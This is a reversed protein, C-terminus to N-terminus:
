ANELLKYIDLGLENARDAAACFASDYLDFDSPNTGVNEADVCPDFLYIGMSKEISILKESLELYTM